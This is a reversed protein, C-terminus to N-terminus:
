TKSVREVWRSRLWEDALHQPVAVQDGSTYAQAEHVIRFDGVVRVKVSKEPEPKEEVVM